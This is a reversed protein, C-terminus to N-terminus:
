DTVKVTIVFTAGADVPNPEITVEQFVPAGTDLTVNRVVTSSKGAADTAVVTIINAGPSLTYEHTFTGEPTVEVPVDNITLTVPSSTADNTTGDVTITPQNTILGETPNNVTLAPPTTDVKFSTSVEVAANGDFDSANLKFTHDGDSLATPTYTCTYGDETPTAQIGETIAGADDINISITSPDVGSDNDTVTWSIVPTANTITASASPYTVAIVPPVKETVRLQLNAGFVSDTNDIQTVNGADDTAKLTVPYYHNELPYSSKSPATITAKYSSTEADWSLTYTQGNVIAEVTKVSM